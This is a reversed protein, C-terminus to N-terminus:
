DNPSRYLNHHEEDQFRRWEENEGMRPGINAETDQKWIGKAQMGEKIYSAM